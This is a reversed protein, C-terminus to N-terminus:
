SLQKVVKLYDEFEQDKIEYWVSGRTSVFRPIPTLYDAYTKANKEGEYRYIGLYNQTKRDVLWLKIRFGAFREL